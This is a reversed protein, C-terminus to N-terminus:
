KEDYISEEPMSKHLAEMEMAQATADLAEKIRAQTIKRASRVAALGVELVLDYEDPDLNENYLGDVLRDAAEGIADELAASAPNGCSPCYPDGCLCPGNGM